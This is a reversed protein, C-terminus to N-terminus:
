LRAIETDLDLNRRTEILSEASKKDLGGEVLDAYTAQWTAHADGFHDLLLRMRAPGIGPVRSLGLLYPTHENMAPTNYWHNARKTPTWRLEGLMAQLTGDQSRLSAHVCTIIDRDM